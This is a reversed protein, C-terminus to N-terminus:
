RDEVSWNLLYTVTLLFFSKNLSCILSGTVIGLVMKIVREHPKIIFLPCSTHMTLCDQDVHLGM